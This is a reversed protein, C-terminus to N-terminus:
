NKKTRKRKSKAKNRPIARRLNNEYNNAYYIINLKDKEEKFKIQNITKMGQLKENSKKCIFHNLCEIFKVNLINKLDENLLKLEDIKNKNFKEPDKIKTYKKSIKTSFIIGLSKHLFKREFNIKTNKIQNDRIKKIKNKEKDIKSNIFELAYNLVLHKIRKRLCDPDYKRYKKKRRNNNGNNIDIYCNGNNGNNIPVASTVENSENNDNQELLLSNVLMNNSYDFYSPLDFFNPSNDEEQNIQIQKDETM